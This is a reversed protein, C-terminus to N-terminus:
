TRPYPIDAIMRLGDGPGGPGCAAEEELGQTGKLCAASLKEELHLAGGLRHWSGAVRLAEQSFTEQGAGAKRGM